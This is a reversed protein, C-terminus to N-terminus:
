PRVNSDVPEQEPLADAPVNEVPPVVVAPPQAVQAVPEAPAGGTALPALTAHIAAAEATLADLQEQSVPTGAANQAQLAAITDAQTKLRAVINNIDAQIDDLAAQLNAETKMLTEGLHALQSLRWVIYVALLLYAATGCGFVAILIYDARVMQM